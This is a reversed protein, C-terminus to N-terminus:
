PDTQPWASALTLHLGANIRVKAHWHMHPEGIRHAKILANWLASFLAAGKNLEQWMEELTRGPPPERLWRVGSNCLRTCPPRAVMLLDWGDRLYDGVDSIVNTAEITPLCSDVSWADHGTAPFARRAIGSTECGILVRGM